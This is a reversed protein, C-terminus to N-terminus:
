DPDSLAALSSIMTVPFWTGARTPRHVRVGIRLYPKRAQRALYIMTPIRRFDTEDPQFAPRALWPSNWGVAESAASAERRSFRTGNAAKTALHCL